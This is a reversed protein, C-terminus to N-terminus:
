STPPRPERPGPSFGQVAAVLFPGAIATRAKAPATLEVVAGGDLKLRLRVPGAGLGSAEGYAARRVSDEPFRVGLAHVRSLGHRVLLVDHVWAGRMRHPGLPLDPQIGKVLRLKCRFTSDAESLNRRSSWVRVALPSLCILEAAIIILAIYLLM